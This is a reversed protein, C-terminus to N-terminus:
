RPQVFIWDTSGYLSGGNIKVKGLISSAGYGSGSGSVATSHCDQCVIDGGRSAIFGVADGSGNQNIEIDCEILHCVVNASGVVGYLDDSSDDARKVTFGHVTTGEGCQVEGDLIVSKSGVYEVYDALVLNGSITGAGTIEIKDGSSAEESATTIGDASFEYVEGSSGDNPYRVVTGAVAIVPTAVYKEGDSVPAEGVLAPWPLHVTPTFDKIDRAHLPAQQVTNFASDSGHLRGGSSATDDTGNDGLEVSFVYPYGRRATPMSSVYLGYHNIWHIGPDGLYIPSRSEMSTIGFVNNVTTYFTATYDDDKIAVVNRSFQGPHMSVGDTELELMRGGDDFAIAGHHGTYMIGDHTMIRHDDNDEPNIWHRDSSIPYYRSIMTPTTFSTRFLHNTSDSASRFTHYRYDNFNHSYCYTPDHPNIKVTPHVNFGFQYSLRGSSSNLDSWGGPTNFIGRKSYSVVSQAFLIPSIGSTYIHGNYASVEGCKMSITLIPGPNLASGVAGPPDAVLAGSLHWSEGQDTSELIDGGPWKLWYEPSSRWAVANLYSYVTYLYGTIPDITIWNLSPSWPPDKPGAGAIAIAEELTLVCRFSEGDRKFIANADTNFYQINYPDDPDVAMVRPYGVFGSNINRWTPKPGDISFDDSIWLGNRAGVLAWTM